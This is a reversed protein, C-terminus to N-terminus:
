LSVANRFECCYLQRLLIVMLVAGTSMDICAPSIRFQAMGLHFPSDTEELSSSGYLNELGM